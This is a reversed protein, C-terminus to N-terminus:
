FRSTLFKIGGFALLVILLGAIANTITDKAKKVGGSEGSSVIYLIGGYIIFGVAVLGSLSLLIQVVNVVLTGIASFSDIKVSCDLQRLGQYLDPILSQGTCADALNRFPNM